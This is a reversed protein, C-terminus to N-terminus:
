CIRFCAWLPQSVEGLDRLLISGPRYGQLAQARVGVGRQRGAPKREHSSPHSQADPWELQLPSGQCTHTVM